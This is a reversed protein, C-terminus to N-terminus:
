GKNKPIRPYFSNIKISKTLLDEQFWFQIEMGESTVGVLGNKQYEIPSFFAEEAKKLIIEPSWKHHFLPTEFLERIKKTIKVIDTEGEVVGNLM